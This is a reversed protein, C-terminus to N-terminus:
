WQRWKRTRTEASASACVTWGDPNRPQAERAGTRVKGVARPASAESPLYVKNRGIREALSGGAPLQADYALTDDYSLAGDATADPADATYDM